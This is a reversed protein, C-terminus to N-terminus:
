AEALVLVRFRACTSASFGVDVSLTVGFSSVRAAVAGGATISGWDQVCVAAMIVGVTERNPVCYLPLSLLTVSFLSLGADPSRARGMAVVMAKVVCREVGPNGSACGSPGIVSGPVMCAASPWCCGAMALAVAAASGVAVISDTLLSTAGKRVLCIGSRYVLAGGM